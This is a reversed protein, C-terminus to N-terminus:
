ATGLAPTSSSPTLISNLFSLKLHRASRCHASFLAVQNSVADLKRLAARQQELTMLPVRLATLTSRNINNINTGGAGKIIKQRAYSSRLFYMLYRPLVKEQDPRARMLFGSFSTATELKDIVVASGVREKNAHSRIILIDGQELYDEASMKVNVSYLNDMVPHISDSQIATIDIVPVGSGRQDGRFNLGNRLNCLDTFKEGDSTTFCEQLLRQFVNTAAEVVEEGAEIAAEFGQMLEMLEHQQELPPLLFEFRALERFKTRPSLSGSSTKEAHTFFADSQVLYPLFEPLMRQDKVELVIIDGSCLGDFDPVGAKKQYVRRKGFLVQGAQFTKTFTVGESIQGWRRIRLDGPDLHDLGVYRDLGREEPDREHDTVERVVDGFTVAEWHDRDTQM